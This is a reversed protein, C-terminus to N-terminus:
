RAKSDLLGSVLKTFEENILQDVTTNRAAAVKELQQAQRQTIGMKAAVNSSNPIDLWAQRAKAIEDATLGFGKLVGAAMMVNGAPATHVGDSTLYNGKSPRTKAAEAIAAQM